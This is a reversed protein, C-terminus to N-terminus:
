CCFSPSPKWGLGGLRHWSHSWSLNLTGPNHRPTGPFPDTGNCQPANDYLEPTWSIGFHGPRNDSIGNVATAAESHAPTRSAISGSRVVRSYRRARPHLTYLYELCTANERDPQRCARCSPPNEAEDPDCYRRRVLMRGCPVKSSNAARHGRLIVSPPWM